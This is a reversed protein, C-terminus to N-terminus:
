CAAGKAAIQAPQDDVNRPEPDDMAYLTFGVEDLVDQIRAIQEETLRKM